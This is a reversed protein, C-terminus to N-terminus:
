RGRPHFKRHIEKLRSRAVHTYIQTTSIDAHGLLEQIARLDAGGELMHTAFSHRLMHPTVPGRIGAAQAYRRLVKWFGQRTIRKGSRNLFLAHTPKSRALGPRGRELYDRLADMSYEGLPVIREKDGKGRVQATGTVFALQSLDLGVLESVRMGTAYIMELMARDRLGLSGEGPIKELVSELEQQSLTKPLTRGLRPPRVPSTPNVRVMREQVLFRYFSRLAALHRAVSRPSLGQVRLDGLFAQIQVPGVGILDQIGQADLSELFRILDRSYAELTNRSLGRELILHNLFRDVIEEM